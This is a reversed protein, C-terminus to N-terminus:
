HAIKHTDGESVTTSCWKCKVSALCESTSCTKKCVCCKSGSPLNGEFWHHENEGQFMWLCMCDCKKKFKM